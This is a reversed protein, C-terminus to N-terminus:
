ECLCNFLLAQFSCSPLKLKNEFEEPFSGTQFNIKYSKLLNLAENEYSANGFYICISDDALGLNERVLLISYMIDEPSKIQFSNAFLLIENRSVIIHILNEETYCSMVASYNEKYKKLQYEIPGKLANFSQYGIFNRAFFLKWEAAIQYHIIANCYKVPSQQMLNNQIKGANFILWELSSNVESFDAPVLTYNESHFYIKNSKFTSYFIDSKKLKSSILEIADAVSFEENWKISQLLVIDNAANLLLINFGNKQLEARLHCDKFQLKQIDDSKFILEQTGEANNM